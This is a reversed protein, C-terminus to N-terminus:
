DHAPAEPNASLKTEWARDFAFMAAYPSDGFGAVGDQLNDGYLACWKGGDHSIAPRMLVHPRAADSAAEQASRMAMEAYHSLNADRLAREIAAGVDCNSLRSRTADYIAQYSDM